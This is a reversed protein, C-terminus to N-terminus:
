AAMEGLPNGAALDIRAVHHAAHSLRRAIAGACGVVWVQLGLGAARAAVDTFIADGSGIVLREFGRATLAELGGEDELGAHLAHDAGDVGHGCVLRGRRGLASVMLRTASWANRRSAGVLLLDESTFRAANAVESLTATADARDLDGATLNELDLMWFTRM